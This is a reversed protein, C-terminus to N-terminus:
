NKEAEYGPRYKSQMPQEKIEGNKYILPRDTKNVPTKIDNINVRRSIRMLFGNEFEYWGDGQHKGIQMMEAHTHKSLLICMKYLCVMSDESDKYFKKARIMPYFLMQAGPEPTPISICGEWLHTEEPNTWKAGPIARVITEGLLAGIMIQFKPQQAILSGGGMKYGEEVAEIVALTFEFRGIMPAIEGEMSRIGDLFMGLNGQPKENM